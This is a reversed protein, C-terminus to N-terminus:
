IDRGVMPVVSPTSGPARIPPQIQLVGHVTGVFFFSVSALLFKILSRDEAISADAIKQPHM